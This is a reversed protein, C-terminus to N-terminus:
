KVAMLLGSLKKKNAKRLRHKKKNGKEKKKKNAKKLYDKKLYLIIFCIILILVIIFYLFVSDKDAIEKESMKGTENQKEIESIKETGNEPEKEEKETKPPASYTCNQGTEPPNYADSCTGINTCNRTQRGSSLCGSWNTCDWGYTCGGGDATGGIVGGTASGGIIFADDSDFFTTEASVNAALAALLSLAILTSDLLNIESPEM